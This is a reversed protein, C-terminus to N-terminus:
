RTSGLGLGCYGHLLGKDSGDQKGKETDDTVRLDIKLRPIIDAIVM